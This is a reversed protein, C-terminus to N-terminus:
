RKKLTVNQVKAEIRIEVDTLDVPVQFTIISEKDDTIKLNPYERSVKGESTATKCELNVKVNKLLAVSTKRGNIKM